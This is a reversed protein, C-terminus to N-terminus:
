DILTIGSLNAQNNKLFAFTLKDAQCNIFEVKKFRDNYKFFTNILIANEFRVKYFSCHEFHCNKLNGSFILDSLNSKKFQTYNWVVEKLDNQEFNLELMEAGSFDAATFDCKEINNKYFVADILSCRLFSNKLLNSDQIKSDRLDAEFFDCGEINNKALILGSLDANQFLCNKLNSSSFKEKLNKLGSFDADTWNGQSMDWNWDNKKRPVADTADSHKSSVQETTNVAATTKSESDAFYNLDVEFIGALRNLTAIDPLSEGREWKGVAQPSISIQQALEAQSLNLKKRAQAIKQGISKSHLM